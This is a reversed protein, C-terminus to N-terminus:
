STHALQEYEVPTKYGLSSHLRQRNYWVEIYEFIASKAEQRTKFRRQYILETKLSHFFSEVFANDYCNGKRSMSAIIGKEDLRQRYGGAAYQSGRDSHAVLDGNVLQRGLAMNLAELVLEVRMHDHAAHGVIVRSFIDLFIALYLWGEDTPVFTIDGGWVKNPATAMLEATETKFVRDAIPLDHKSDTTIVKFRKKGVAQIGNGRMLRAVRNESCRVGERKLCATMRPSGYTKRSKEHIGKIKMILEQNKIKREPEPRGKWGYYGGRSVELVECSLSVEISESAMKEVM